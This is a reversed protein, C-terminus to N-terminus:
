AGILCLGFSVTALVLAFLGWGAMAGDTTANAVRLREYHYVEDMNTM